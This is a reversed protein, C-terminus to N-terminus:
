PSLIGSLPSQKWPAFLLANVSNMPSVEEWGTPFDPSAPIARRLNMERVGWRNGGSYDCSGGFPIHIPSQEMAAMYNEWTIDEGEIRRLGECFFHAAIWGYMAYSTSTYEPEIWQSYLSMSQSDQMDIWGLGYVDFDGGIVPVVADSVSLSTNVYSTICTKRLGQSVLERIIKPLADQLSGIIICDLNEHTLERVAAALAAEAGAGAADVIGTPGQRVVVRLRSLAAAQEIIGRFMNEGAIDDTYLIGITKAKFLGAAYGVMIRGETRYIPHVPFLNYGENNTKAGAAYLGSIGSVFYVAPIGYRKIDRVTASVVANGFHGLIAFVKADEVMGRLAERGKEPDREDDAYHIFIIRRGDIGGHANVMRLYAAIGANMPITVEAMPGSTPASNAILVQSDGAGQSYAVFRPGAV